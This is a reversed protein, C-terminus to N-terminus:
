ASGRTNALASIAMAALRESGHKRVEEALQELTTPEDKEWHLAGNEIVAVYSPIRAGEAVEDFSPNWLLYESTQSIWDRRVDLPVSGNFIHAAMGNNISDRILKDSVKFVGIRRVTKKTKIGDSM